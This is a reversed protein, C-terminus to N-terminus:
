EEAAKKNLVRGKISKPAAGNGHTKPADPADKEIFPSSPRPTETATGFDSSCGFWTVTAAFFFLIPIKVVLRSSRHSLHM